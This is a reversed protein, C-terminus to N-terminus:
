YGTTSGIIYTCLYNGDSTTNGSNLDTGGLQDPCGGNAPTLVMDLRAQNGAGIYYYLGRYWSTSNNVATVMAPTPNGTLYPSMATLFASQSTVGYTTTDQRCQGIGSTGKGDSNYGYNAGLCSVTSPFGGNRAKYIQLAKLWQNAASITQSNKAREQVNRYVVLTLAALIAIIVIVVILEIITFGSKNKQM